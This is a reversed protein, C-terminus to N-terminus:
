GRIMGGLSPVTLPNQRATGGMILRLIADNVASGGGRAGVNVEPAKQSGSVGGSMIPPTAQPAKVGQLGSLMQQLPNMQMPAAAGVPTVTADWGTTTAPATQQQMASGTIFGGLPDAANLGNFQTMFSSPSLGLGQMVQGFMQPNQAGTIAMLGTLFPDM